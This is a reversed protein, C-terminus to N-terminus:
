DPRVGQWTYVEVKEIWLYDTRPSYEPQHGLQFQLEVNNSASNFFSCDIYKNSFEIGDILFKPASNKEVIVEFLKGASRNLWPNLIQGEPVKGYGMSPLTLNFGKYVLRLTSEIQTAYTYGGYQNPTTFGVTQFVGQNLEIRVAINNDIPDGNAEGSLKGGVWACGCSDLTHDFTLKLIGNEFKYCDSGPIFDTQEPTAIWNGENNFDEVFLSVETYAPIEEKKCSTILM